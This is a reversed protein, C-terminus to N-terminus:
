FLQIKSPKTKTLQTKFETLIMEHIEELSLNTTFAAAGIHGGGGYKKAVVSVDYDSKARMSVYYIGDQPEILCVLKSSNITAIKNILGCYNDHTTNYKKAQEPTIHTIIIQNHDYSSLNEIALSLLQMNKLTNNALFAKYIAERNIQNSFESAISFTKETIEGVVFNNTDTIIGAYLKGMQSKNLTYEFEKIISYIIECTSSCREVINVNGPFNNTAHHDIVIRHNANTFLNKFKGLRDLNPADMMIAIDYKEITNPNLKTQDLIELLGDSLNTAEAFIDVQKTNFHDQIFEQMVVMSAIADPDPEIHSILCVSKATKLLNLEEYTKMIDNYCIKISLTDFNHLYTLNTFM